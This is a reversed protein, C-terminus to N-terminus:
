VSVLDAADRSEGVDGVLYRWGEIVEIGEPVARDPQERVILVRRARPM